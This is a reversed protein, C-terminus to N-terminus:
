WRQVLRAGVRRGREMADAVREATADGAEPVELFRATIALATPDGARLVASVCRRWDTDRMVYLCWGQLAWVVPSGNGQEEMQRLLRLADVWRHRAILLRVECIDVAAQKPHLLRLVILLDELEAHAGIRLGTAFISLLVGLVVPDCQIDLMTLSRLHPLRSHAGAYM